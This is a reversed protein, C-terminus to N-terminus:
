RKSRIQLLATKGLEVLVRYVAIPVIYPKLGNNALVEVQNAKYRAMKIRTALTNSTNGTYTRYAFLPEDIYYIEKGSNLVNCLLEQDFCRFADYAERRSMMSGHTFPTTPSFLLRRRLQAKDVKGTRAKYAHTKYRRSSQDIYHSSSAVTWISEDSEMIEAQRQLAWTFPLIDDHDLIKIFDGTSKEVGERYTEEIGRHRNRFYAKIRSDYFPSSEDTFASVIKRTGDTSADDVIVYEMDVGEQTLASSMTQELFREGNYTATVVSVKTM